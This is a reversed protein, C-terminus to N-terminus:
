VLEIEGISELMALAQDRAFQDPGDLAAILADVGTQGLRRLADAANSRVWWEHDSLSAALATIVEYLM